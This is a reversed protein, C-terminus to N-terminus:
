GYQVLASLSKRMRSYQQVAKAISEGAQRQMPIFRNRWAGYSLEILLEKQKSEDSLVYAYHEAGRKAYLAAYKTKGSYFVTTEFGHANIESTEDDIFNQFTSHIDEPISVVNSISCTTSPEIKLSQAIDKNTDEVWHLQLPDFGTLDKRLEYASIRWGQKGKKHNMTVIFSLLPGISLDWGDKQVMRVAQRLDGKSPTHFSGPHKHWYGLVHVRNQHHWKIINLLLQDFEADNSCHIIDLDSNPGAPFAYLLAPDSCTGVLLGVTEQNINKNCESEIVALCSRSAPMVKAFLPISFINL